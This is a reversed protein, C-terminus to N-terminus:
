AQFGADEFENHLWRLDWLLFELYWITKFNEGIKNRRIIMAIFLSIIVIAWSPTSFGTYLSGAFFLFYLAAFAIVWVVVMKAVAAVIHYMKAYKIDVLVADTDLQRIIKLAALVGEKEPNFEVLNVTRYLNKRVVKGAVFYSAIVVPIAPALITLYTGGFTSAGEVPISGLQTIVSIYDYYSVLTYTLLIPVIVALAWLAIAMSQDWLGSLKRVSNLSSVLRSIREIVDQENV